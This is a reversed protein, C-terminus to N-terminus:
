AAISSQIEKVRELMGNRTDELLKHTLEARTKLAEYNMEHLAIDSDYKQKAEDFTKDTERLRQSMQLLEAVAKDLSKQVSIREDESATLKQWTAELKEQTAEADSELQVKQKDALAVREILRRNEDQVSQIEGSQKQVRASLDAIQARCTTLEKTRGASTSELVTLKQKTATLTERLRACESELMAVKNEAASLGSKTEELTRLTKSAPDVQEAISRKIADLEKIKHEADILLNRISENEKGLQRAITLYLENDLEVDPKNDVAPSSTKSGFFNRLKSMSDGWLVSGGACASTV